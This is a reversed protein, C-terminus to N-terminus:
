AAQIAEQKKGISICIEALTGQNSYETPNLEVAKSALQYCTNLLENSPKAETNRTNPYRRAIFSLTQDDEQISGSALKNMLEVLEESTEHEAVWELEFLAADRAFEDNDQNKFFELGAYFEEKQGNRVYAYM